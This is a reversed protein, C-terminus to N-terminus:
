LNERLQVAWDRYYPDESQVTQDFIAKAEAKLDKGGKDILLEAMYVKAEDRTEFFPTQQCERYYALSKKKNKLPWPLVAWFRGLYLIPGSQKYMKDIQYARELSSQTKDKLSENLATLISKGDAYTKVCLGYYFHGAPDDPNLVRAKEAHAMGKKGYQACIKKWGSLNQKKALDGYEHFARACKWAFEFCNPDRALLEEYMAIARGLNEVGGQARLAEAEALSGALTLVPALLFLTMGLLGCLIKNPM